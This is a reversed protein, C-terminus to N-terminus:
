NAACRNISGFSTKRRCEGDIIRRRLDNNVSMPEAEGAFEIKTCTLFTLIGDSLPPRCDLFIRGEVRPVQDYPLQSASVPDMRIAAALNLPRHFNALFAM